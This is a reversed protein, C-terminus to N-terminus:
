KLAGGHILLGLLAIASAILLIIGEFMTNNIKKVLKNLRERM